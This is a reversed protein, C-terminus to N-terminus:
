PRDGKMKGKPSLSKIYEVLSVIEDSSLAGQFSPMLNQYGSVIKAQPNVISERLYNEDAILSEGTNLLVRSGYLGDLLPAHVSSGSSHCSFCGHRDYAAKGRSLVDGAGRLKANEIGTTAWEQYQAEPLVIVEGGMDAHHTGCYQTCFLRYHGPKTAQFWTYTYRGPLVDQKIRFAPVFFSHIVDESTMVLKIPKGLPIHLEGLEGTGDAHQFKWMWQKGTVYIETSNKPPSHIELYEYAGFGFLVVFIGLPIIAWLVELKWSDTRKLTRDASSGERYRVVLFIIACFVSLAVLGCIGLLSLTLLDVSSAITSAQTPFIPIATPNM